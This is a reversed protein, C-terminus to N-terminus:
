LKNLYDLCLYVTLFENMIGLDRNKLKLRFENIPIKIIKIFEQNDIYDYKVKKCNTAVFCYIKETGYSWTYFSSVYILNGTYGTEELLERKACDLPDENNEILGGPVSIIKKEPGPRYQEILIVNNQDDIAFINVGDNSKVIDYDSINGNPLKFQKRLMKRYGSYKIDESVKEWEISDMTMIKINTGGKNWLRM